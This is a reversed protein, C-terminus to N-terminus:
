VYWLVIQNSSIYNFDDRITNLQHFLHTEGLREMNMVVEFVVDAVTSWLGASPQISLPQSTAHINPSVLGHPTIGSPQGSIILM